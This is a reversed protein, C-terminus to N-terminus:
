EHYDIKLSKGDVYVGKSRKIKCVQEATLGITEGNRLIVDEEICYSAIDLLFDRVEIPDGNYKIVEMEDKGFNNMGVTYLSYGENERVMHVWVLGMLPFIKMKLAEEMALYFKPQYVLGNTYIGIVNEQKCLTSLVKIFLEGDANM